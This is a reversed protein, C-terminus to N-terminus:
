SGGDPKCIELPIGAANLKEHIAPSIQADTLVHDFADLGALRYLGGKRFKSSDVLLVTKDCIEMLVRKIKIIDQNNQFAAGGHVVSTSLFMTNARLGQAAQECILGFFANRPRNYDGGLCILRLDPYPALAQVVGMANTIITLPALAPLLPLMEAVTTSDDLIIIQEPRILSIARAIIAQKGERALAMRYSVTKQTAARNRLAIGGHLKEVLGQQALANADRHITMRSVDFHAALADITANGTELLLGLIRQQRTTNDGRRASRSSNLSHSPGTNESM